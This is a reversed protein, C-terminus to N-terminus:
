DKSVYLAELYRMSPSSGLNGAVPHQHRVGNLLVRSASSIESSALGSARASVAPPLIAEPTSSVGKPRKTVTVSGAPAAKRRSCRTRGGAIGRLHSSGPAMQASEHLM